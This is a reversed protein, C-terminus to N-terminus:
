LVPKLVVQRLMTQRYLGEQELHQAHLDGASRRADSAAAANSERSSTVTPNSLAAAKSSSTAPEVPDQRVKQQDKHGKPREPVTIPRKKTILPFEPDEAIDGMDTVLSKKKMRMIQTSIREGKYPMKPLKYKPNLKVKKQQHIWGM